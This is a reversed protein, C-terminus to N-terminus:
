LVRLGYAELTTGRASEYTALATFYDVVAALERIEASALDGQLRLVVFTSSTGIQLKKEEAELSKEALERAERTSQVRQWAALVGTAADDLELLIQQELQRKYLTTQNRRLHAIARQADRTRNFLPKSFVIGVSYRDTGPADLANVSGSLNRASTYRGVNAYLDLQPRAAWEDRRIETDRIAEQALIQRYDPRQALATPFDAQPDPKVPQPAPLDPM